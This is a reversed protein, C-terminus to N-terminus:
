PIRGYFHCYANRPDIEDPVALGLVPVGDEIYLAVPKENFYWTSLAILRYDALSKTDSLLIGLTLLESINIFYDKGLYTKEEAHAHAFVARPTMERGTQCIGLRFGIGWYPNECLKSNNVFGSQNLATTASHGNYSIHALLDTLNRDTLPIVPIVEMNAYKPFGPVLDTAKESLYELRAISLKYANKQRLKELCNNAERKASALRATEDLSM